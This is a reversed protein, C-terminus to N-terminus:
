ACANATRGALSPTSRQLGRRNPNPPTAPPPRALPKAQMIDHLGSLHQRLMRMEVSCPGRRVVRQGGPTEALALILDWSDDEQDIMSAADIYFLLLPQLRAHLAQSHM